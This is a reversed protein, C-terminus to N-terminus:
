RDAVAFEDGDIGFGVFEEAAVVVAAVVALRRTISDRRL